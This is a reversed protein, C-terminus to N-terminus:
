TGTKVHGLWFNIEREFRKQSEERAVSYWESNIYDPPYEPMMLVRDQMVLIFRREVSDVEGDMDYDFLTWLVFGRSDPSVFEQYAKVQFRLFCNTEGCYLTVYHMDYRWDFNDHNTLNETSSLTKYTVPTHPLEGDDNVLDKSFPSLIYDKILLVNSQKSGISLQNWGAVLAIILGSVLLFKRM